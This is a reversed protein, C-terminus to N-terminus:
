VTSAVPPASKGAPRGTKRIGIATKDLLSQGRSTIIRGKKGKIDIQKVLQSKELQQLVKRIVNGSGKRFRNPKHGRNKRGGYKTRLKAVGVPGRNAITRLIAASRQFWWDNDVPPRMKHAGTKVYFAWGPPKVLNQKKLEKATETILANAPVDYINMYEGIRSCGRSAM